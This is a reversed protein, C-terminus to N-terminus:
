SFRSTYSKKLRGAAWGVIPMIFQFFGFSGALRLTQRLTCGRLGLSVAIAVAFTDMAMALAIAVLVGFNM